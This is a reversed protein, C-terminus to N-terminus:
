VSTLHDHHLSYALRSQLIIIITPKISYAYYNPSFPGRPLKPIISILHYISEYVDVHDSQGICYTTEITFFSLLVCSTHVNEFVVRQGGKVKVSGKVSSRSSIM